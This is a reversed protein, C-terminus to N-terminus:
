YKKLGTISANHLNASQFPTAKIVLTEYNDHVVRGVSLPKFSETIEAFQAGTVRLYYEGNYSVVTQQPTLGAAKSGKGCKFITVHDNLNLLYEPWDEEEIETASYSTGFLRLTKTLPYAQQWRQYLPPSTAGIGNVIKGKYHGTHEGYLRVNM